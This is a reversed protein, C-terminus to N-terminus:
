DVPPIENGIIKMGGEGPLVHFCLVWHLEQDGHVGQVGRLVLIQQGWQGQPHHQTGLVVLLLRLGQVHLSLNHTYAIFQTNMFM